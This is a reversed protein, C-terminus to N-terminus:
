PEDEEQQDAAGRADPGGSEAPRELPDGSRWDVVRGRAPGGERV